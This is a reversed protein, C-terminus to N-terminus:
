KRLEIALRKMKGWTAREVLTVASVVREGRENYAPGARDTFSLRAYAAVIEQLEQWRGGSFHLEYLQKDETRQISVLGFQEGITDFEKLGTQIVGWRPAPPEQAIAAIAAIEAVAEARIHILVATWASTEGPDAWVGLNGVLIMTSLVRM